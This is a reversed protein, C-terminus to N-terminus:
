DKIRRLLPFSIEQKFDKKKSINYKAFVVDNVKSLDDTSALGARVGAVTSGWEALADLRLPPSPLARGGPDIFPPVVAEKWILRM